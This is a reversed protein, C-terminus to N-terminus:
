SGERMQAVTLAALACADSYSAPPIDIGWHRAIFQRVHKGIKALAEDKTADYDRRLQRYCWLLGRLRSENDAIATAHATVWANYGAVRREQDDQNKSRMEELWAQEVGRLAPPYSPIPLPLCCDLWGPTSALKVAHESAATKALDAISALGTM